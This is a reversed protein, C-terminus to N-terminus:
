LWLSLVPKFGTKQWSNWNKIETKNYQAFPGSGRGARKKKRQFKLLANSPDNPKEDYFTYNAFFDAPGKGCDRM